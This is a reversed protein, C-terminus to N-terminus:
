FYTDLTPNTNDVKLLSECEQKILEAIEGKIYPLKHLANGIYYDTISRDLNQLYQGTWFLDDRKKGKIQEFYAINLMKEALIYNNRRYDTPIYRKIRTPIAHEDCLKKIEKNILDAYVSNPTYSGNYDHPNDSFGYLSEYREILEPHELRLKKLFWKAQVDRLTMGAAFVIYDVHVEKAMQVLERLDEMSDTIYPIVPMLLIGCQIHTTREKIEQIINLREQPSSAKKELFKSIDQNITTITTSVSCWSKEGIQDLLEIDRLVLDSKTIIHVPYNHNALVQLCSQTNKYKREAFQYPDTTGSFGVVDPLLKRSRNIEHHLTHALNEKIIINEEFEVPLHYKKSRSDCYICGIQCGNYPNITYRTWFWSDIYKIRNLASKYQKHTFSVM